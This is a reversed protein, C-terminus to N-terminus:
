RPSLCPTLGSTGAALGPFQGNQCRGIRLECVGLGRREAGPGHCRAPQRLRPVDGLEGLLTLTYGVRLIYGDVDRVALKCRIDVQRVVPPFPDLHFADVAWGANNSLQDNSIANLTV